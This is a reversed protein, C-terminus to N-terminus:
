PGTTRRRGRTQKEDPGGERPGTHGEGRKHRRNKEEKPIEKRNKTKGGTCPRRVHAHIRTRKQTRALHGDGRLTQSTARVASVEVHIIACFPPPRAPPHGVSAVLANLCASLACRRRSLSLSHFSPVVYRRASVPLQGSCGGKTRTTHRQVTGEFGM